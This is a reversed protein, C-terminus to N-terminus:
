WTIAVAKGGVVDNVIEHRSLMNIPYAKVEGEIDLGIVQERSVMWKEAEAAQVFEPDTIARIGDRPLVTVIRYERVEDTNMSAVSVLRSDFGLQRMMMAVITLLAAIGVLLPLAQLLASLSLPGHSILTKM